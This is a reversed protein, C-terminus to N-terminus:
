DFTAASALSRGAADWAAKDALWRRLGLKKQGLYLAGDRAVLEGPAFPYIKKLPGLVAPVVLQGSEILFYPKKLYGLGVILCVVGPVFGLPNRALLNIAITIGGLVLFAISWGRSYGVRM